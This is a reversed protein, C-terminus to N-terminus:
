ELRVSLCWKQIIEKASEGSSEYNEPTLLRLMGWATPYNAQVKAMWRLLEDKEYIYEETGEFLYAPVAKDFCALTPVHFIMWGNDDYELALDGIITAQIDRWKNNHKFRLLHAEYVDYGLLTNDKGVSIPAGINEVSPPEGILWVEKDPWKSSWNM